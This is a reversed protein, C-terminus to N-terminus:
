AMEEVAEILKDALTECAANTRLLRDHMRLEFEPTPDDNDLIASEIHKREMQLVDLAEVMADLSHFMHPDEYFFATLAHVGRRQKYPVVALGKGSSACTRAPSCNGPADQSDVM